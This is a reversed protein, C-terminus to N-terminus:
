KKGLTQICKIVVLVLFWFTGYTLCATIKLLQNGEGFSADGEGGFPQLQIKKITVTVKVNGQLTIDLNQDCKFSKGSGAAM